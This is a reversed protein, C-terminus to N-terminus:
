SGEDAVLRINVLCCGVGGGALVGGIQMCISTRKYPGWIYTLDMMGREPFEYARTFQLDSARMECVLVVVLLVRVTIVALILVDANLYDAGM